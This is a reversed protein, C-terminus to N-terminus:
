ACTLIMANVYVESDVCECYTVSTQAPDKTLKAGGWGGFDTCVTEVLNGSLSNTLPTWSGLGNHVSKIDQM